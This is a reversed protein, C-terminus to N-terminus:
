KKHQPTKTASALFYLKALKLTVGLIFKLGAYIAEWKRFFITRSVKKLSLNTYIHAKLQLSILEKPTLDTWDIKYPYSPSSPYTTFSDWDDDTFEYKGKIYREYLESGPYPVLISFRTIDTDLSKAFRITREALEKTEGPVGLMYLGMIKIGFKKLSKVAKVISEIRQKKNLNQLLYEEGTEIGLSVLQCGAERLAESLEDDIIEARTECQWSVINKIRRKSMYGLIKLGISKSPPFLPDIFFFNKIGFNEYFTEIEDCINEPSRITYKNGMSVTCFNCSYPCGRSALITLVNTNKAPIFPYLRYHKLYKKFFRWAPFPISDLNKIRDRPITHIIKGDERFVIGKVKHLEDSKKNVLLELIERFTFEGEGKVIIDALGRSIIDDSFYSAHVNGFIIKTKPSRYRVGQAVKYSFSATQTIVSICLIDPKFDVITDVVSKPDMKEVYNDIVSIEDTFSSSIACLYGAWLPPFASDFFRYFGLQRELSVSSPNLFFIRM